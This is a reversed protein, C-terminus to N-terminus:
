EPLPANADARLDAIAEEWRAVVPHALAVDPGWAGTGIQIAAEIEGAAAALPKALAPIVSFYGSTGHRESGRRSIFYSISLLSLLETRRAAIAAVLRPAAGALLANIVVEVAMRASATEAELDALKTQWQALAATAATLDDEADAQAARAAKLTGAPVAMGKGIAAAVAMTHREKASVVAANAAGLKSENAHVLAVARTVAERGAEEAREAEAVAEIAAALAQREPSKSATAVDNKIAHVTM